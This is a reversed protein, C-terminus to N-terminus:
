ILIQPFARVCLLHEANASELGPPPLLPPQEEGSNQGPLPAQQRQPAPSPCTKLFMLARRSASGRAGPEAKLAGEHTLSGAPRGEGQLCRVHHDCNDQDDSSMSDRDCNVLLIAGHGSPGWVWQRQRHCLVATVPARALGAGGEGAGEPGQEEARREERGQAWLRAPARPVCCSRSSLRCGRECSDTAHRWGANGKGVPLQRLILDTKGGQSRSSRGASVGQRKGFEPAWSLHVEGKSM